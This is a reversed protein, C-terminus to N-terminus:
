QEVTIRWGRGAVRPSPTRMGTGKEVLTGQVCAIGGLDETPHMAIARQMMPKKLGVRKAAVSTRERRFLQRRTWAQLARRGLLRTCGRGCLRRFPSGHYLLRLDVSHRRHGDFIPRRRSSSELDTLPRHSSCLTSSYTGAALISLSFGMAWDKFAILYFGGYVPWSWIFINAVLRAPFDRANFAAAGDWFLAVYAFALPAALVGIHAMVGKDGGEREVKGPPFRFYAFTLQFFNVILLLLGWNFHSRCWLHVFGFSLLNHAIFHPAMNLSIQTTGKATPPYFSTLYNFQLTYVVIRTKPDADLKM